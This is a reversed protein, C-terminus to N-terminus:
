RTGLRDLMADMTTTWVEGRHAALWAILKRHEADSVQLYDGGVGHFLLVALGNEREAKRIHAIMQEATAGEGFATAPIHMPDLTAPDAKAETPTM